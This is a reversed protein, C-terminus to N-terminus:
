KKRKLKQKKEAEEMMEQMKRLRRQFRNESSPQKKKEEITALIKKEDLIFNKITLMIIITLINSITYYLSLGSAFNNFFILLTFPIVYMIFKMNPMGPQSPQMQQSGSMKTYFFMAIAATIPFLSVHDGYFPIYFPLEAIVDYSSLDDAWLFSEGRLAFAVPFFCFLAYFVPLQILAPLCGALPNAGAQNYIKMTEQNRKMPDDKYKESVASIEPKLIRMKAQGLYMKYQVPSMVLRTLIVMIIIAIGASFFSSLYYYLPFFINENIWGFIGWGFWISDSIGEYSENLVYYDNPGIYLKLSENIQNRSDNILPVQTEFLKLYKIDDDDDSDINVSNFKINKKVDNFIVFSNFFHQSYSIWKANGTESDDSYASLDEIDDDNKYNLYTYRNEYTPSRSNRFSKLNWNLKADNVNLNNSSVNFDFLYGKYPLFYVFEVSSIDDLMHVLRLETGSENNTLSHQFMLASTDFSKQSSTIYLSQNNDYIKLPNEDQDNYKKLTSEIIGGGKNSIKLVIDENQLTFVEEQIIQTDNDNLVLSNDNLEATVTRSSEIQNESNNENINEVPQPSMNFVYFACAILLLFGVIQYPDIRSEEM